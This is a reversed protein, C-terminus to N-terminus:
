EFDPYLLYKKRIQKFDTLDDQWSERIQEETLGQIIQIKLISNGALTNFYGNFFKNGKKMIRYADTIYTLNIKKESQLAEIKKDRLDVGYCKLNNHKPNKAGQISVPIYCFDRASFDPHGYVQFPFDTGRGINMITGEFFCLSPYLYVATMNRLNPSPNVPLIYYSSHDYNECTVIELRCSLSENLWKEGNIMQAYEAITMGHVVPVPHMGTFSRFATDLVPGDIYHGNPNPRDLILLLIESEACAEMVYHLTSIYTYFRAGADQIDFILIDIGAMDASAPKKKNGYLSIIETKGKSLVSDSFNEGADAIGEYGHEPTFIKIINIGLSLLSDVINTNDILSAHNAVVGTNKGKLLPLYVEIRKAAPIIEPEGSIVYGEGPSCILLFFLTLFNMIGAVM